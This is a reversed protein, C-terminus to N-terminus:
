DVSAVVAIPATSVVDVAPAASARRGDLGEIWVRLETLAAGRLDTRLDLIAERGWAEVDFDNSTADTRIEFTEFAGPRETACGFAFVLVAACAAARVRRDRRRM